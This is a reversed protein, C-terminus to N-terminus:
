CMCSNFHAHLLGRLVLILDVSLALAPFSVLQVIARGRCDATFTLFRLYLLNTISRPFTEQFALTGVNSSGSLLLTCLFLAAEDLAM